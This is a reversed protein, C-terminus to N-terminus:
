TKFIINVWHNLHAVSFKFLHIVLTSRLKEKSHSFPSFIWEESSNECSYLLIITASVNVIFTYIIDYTYTCKCRQFNTDSNVSHENIQGIITNFELIFEQSTRRKPANM